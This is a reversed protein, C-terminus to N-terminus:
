AVLRASRDLEIKRCKECQRRQIASYGVARGETVINGELVTKWNSWNHWCM